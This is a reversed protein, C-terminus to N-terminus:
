RHLPESSLQLQQGQSDTEAHRYALAPHALM